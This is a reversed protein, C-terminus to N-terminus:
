HELRKVRVARILLDDGGDNCFRFDTGNNQSGGFGADKLFFRGTQLQGKNARRLRYPYGKYAGGLPARIDTSDYEFGVEGSGSDIYDLDVELTQGPKPRFRDDVRLYFYHPTAQRTVLWCQTGNREVVTFQGDEMSVPILGELAGPRAAVQQLDTNYYARVTAVEDKPLLFVYRDPFEKQVRDIQRKIASYGRDGQYFGGVICTFGCFVPKAPDPKISLFAKYLEHENDAGWTDLKVPSGTKISWGEGLVCNFGCTQMYTSYKVGPNPAIWIRVTQFGAESVWDRTLRCWAPFLSDKFDRIFIYQIGTPGCMLEDQDTIRDYYWQLLPPNLELLGPALATAVPVKGRAPDHWFKYLPNQDFELNDGDSWMIHAYIKGPEASVAHGPAQTYAKTPNPFSSWFSGNAYLESVVYGIGHPNAILNCGDGTSGYGMLSTGVGYGPTRFIKEVEAREKEFDLWFVFGKSAAAYDTIPNGIREAKANDRRNGTAFVVKKTCHPMLNILAWDYAAIRDPWRNRFDEIDGKWGFESVLEDKVTETVPVGDEQAASMLALYWTWEKDPDYVFLKEVRKQYKQFLARLGGDRGPLSVYREFPKGCYKLPEVDWLNNILFVEASQQNLMGQLAWASMKANETDKAIEFVYAKPAPPM